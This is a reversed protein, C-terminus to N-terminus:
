ELFLWHSKSTKELTNKLQTQIMITTKQKENPIQQKSKQTKELQRPEWPGAELWGPYGQDLGLGRKAELYREEVMNGLIELSGGLALGPQAQSLWAM